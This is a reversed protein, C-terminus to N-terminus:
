EYQLSASASASASNQAPQPSVNRGTAVGKVPAEGSGFGNWRATVTFTLVGPLGPLLMLMLTEPSLRKLETGTPILGTCAAINGCPDRTYTAFWPSLVM